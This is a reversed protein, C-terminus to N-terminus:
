NLDQLGLLLPDLGLARLGVAPALGCDGVDLVDHGRQLDREFQHILALQWVHCGVLETPPEDVLREVLLDDDFADVVSM